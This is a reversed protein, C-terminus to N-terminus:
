LFRFTSDAALTLTKNISASSNGLILQTGSFSNNLAVDTSNPDGVGLWWRSVNAADKGRIYM